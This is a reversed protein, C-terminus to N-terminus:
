RLFFIEWHSEKRYRKQHKNAKTDGVMHRLRDRQGM